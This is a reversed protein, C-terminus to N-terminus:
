SAVMAPDLAYSRNVAQIFDETTHPSRWLALLCLSDSVDCGDFRLTFWQGETVDWKSNLFKAAIAAPTLASLLVLSHYNIIGFVSCSVPFVSKHPTLLLIYESFTKYIKEPEVFGLRSPM